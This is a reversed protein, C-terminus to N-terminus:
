NPLECWKKQGIVAGHLYILACIAAIHGMSNPDGMAGRYYETDLITMRAPKLISLFLLGWNSIEFRTGDSKDNGPWLNRKLLDHLDVFANSSNGM